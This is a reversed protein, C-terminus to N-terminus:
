GLVEGEYVHITDTFPGADRLFDLVAQNEDDSAADAIHDIHQWDCGEELEDLIRGILDPSTVVIRAAPTDRELHWQRDRKKGSLWATLTLRDPM